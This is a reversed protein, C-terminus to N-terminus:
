QYISKIAGWKMEQTPILCPSAPIDGDLTGECVEQGNKILFLPTQKDPNPGLNSYFFLTINGTKGPECGSSNDADWKVVPGVLDISPNGGCNFAGIFAVPCSAIQGSMQGAPRPFAFLQYCALEPCDDFDLKLTVNSLGQELDFSLDITYLYFGQYPGGTQYTAVSTGELCRGRASSSWMLLILAGTAVYGLRSSMM